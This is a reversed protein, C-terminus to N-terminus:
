ENRIRELAAVARQAMARREPTQTALMGRPSASRGTQVTFLALNRPAVDHNFGGDGGSDRTAVGGDAEIGSARGKLEGAIVDLKDALVSQGDADGPLEDPLIEMTATDSSSIASKADELARQKDPRSAGADRLTTAARNLTAATEKLGLVERLAARDAESRGGGIDVPAWGAATTDPPTVAGEVAPAGASVAWAFAVGSALAILSVAVLRSTSILVPAPSAAASVFDAGAQAMLPRYFASSDDVRLAAGLAGTDHALRAELALAADHLTPAEFRRLSLAAGAIAGAVGCLVVPLVGGTSSFLLRPLADLFLVGLGLGLGAGGLGSFGARALSRVVLRAAVGRLRAELESRTTM